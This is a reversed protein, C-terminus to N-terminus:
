DVILLRERCGWVNTQCLWTRGCVRVGRRTGAGARQCGGCVSVQHFYGACFSSAPKWSRPSVWQGVVCCCHQQLISLPFFCGLTPLPTPFWLGAPDWKPWSETAMQRGHHEMSGNGKQKRVDLGVCGCSNENELLGPQFVSNRPCGKCVTLCRPQEATQAESSSRHACSESAKLQLEWWKCEVKWNHGGWSSQAAVQSHGVTKNWLLQCSRQQPTWPPLPVLTPYLFMSSLCCKWPEHPCGPGWLWVRSDKVPAAGKNVWSCWTGGFLVATQWQHNGTDLGGQTYAESLLGM